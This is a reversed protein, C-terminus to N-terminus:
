LNHAIKRVINRSSIMARCLFRIRSLLGISAISSPEASAFVVSFIFCITFLATFAMMFRNVAIEYKSLTSDFFIEIKNCVAVFWSLKHRISGAQCGHNQITLLRRKNRFLFYM